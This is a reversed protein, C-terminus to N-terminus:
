VHHADVLPALHCGQDADLAAVHDVAVEGHEPGQVPHARGVEGERVDAM